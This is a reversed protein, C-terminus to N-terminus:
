AQLMAKIRDWYHEKWGQKKALYDDEPVDAHSFTLRCGKGHKKLQFTVKSHHDKPWGQSHWDQVIKEDQVLELNTGQIYGGYVSFKAGVSRSIKAAEGSFKAHKKSDMLIEYIDHPSAKFSVTQKITKTKM